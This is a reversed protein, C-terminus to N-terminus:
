FKRRRQRLYGMLGMGMLGTWTVFTSPEPIPPSIELGKATIGAGGLSGVQSAQGTARDITMLSWANNIIGTSYLTDQTPDYALGEATIGAGGLSGVQSAQGTARDITM